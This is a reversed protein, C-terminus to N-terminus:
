GSLNALMEMMDCSEMLKKKEKKHYFCKSIQGKQLKSAYFVIDNVTIGMDYM